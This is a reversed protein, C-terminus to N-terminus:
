LWLRWSQRYRLETQVRQLVLTPKVPVQHVHSLSLGRDLTLRFADEENAVVKLIFDRRAADEMWDDTFSVKAHRGYTEVDVRLTTVEFHTDEVIATSRNAAPEDDIALFTTVQQGAQFWLEAILVPEVGSSLAGGGPTTSILSLDLKGSTTVGNHFANIAPTFGGLVDASVRFPKTSDAPM